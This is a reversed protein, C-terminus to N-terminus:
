APVPSGEVAVGMVAFCFNTGTSNQQEVAAPFREQCGEVNKFARLLQVRAPPRGPKQPAGANTFRCLSIRPNQMGLVKRFKYGLMTRGRALQAKLTGVPVGLKAAAERLSLGDLDFLQLAMRQTPSLRSIIDGMLWRIESRQCLHEPDPAPDALSDAITAVGDGLQHELPLTKRRNNRLQMKVSNIVISMLWSSMRARGQFTSLHKFASLIADQVADEADERNLWRMAMRRLRPLERSVVNEFEISREQGDPGRLGGEFPAEQNTVGDSSTKMPM